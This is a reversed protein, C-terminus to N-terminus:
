RAQQIGRDPVLSDIPAALLGFPGGVPQWIARSRAPRMREAVGRRAVEHGDSRVPGHGDSRVVEHGDPRVPRPACGEAEESM